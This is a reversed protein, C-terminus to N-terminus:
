RGRGVGFLGIGVADLVNHRKGPAMGNRGPATSFCRDVVGRENEDLKGWTRAHDILKPTSGKWSNPELYVVEVGKSKWLGAHEGANRAMLLISNPNPDKRGRLEACEILVKSPLLSSGVFPAFSDGLGCAELRRCSDYVAWGSDAGPDIALLM